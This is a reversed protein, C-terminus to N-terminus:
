QEKEKAYANEKLDEQQLGWEAFAALVQFEEEIKMENYAIWVHEPMASPVESFWVYSAISNSPFYLENEKRKETLDQKLHELVINQNDNM